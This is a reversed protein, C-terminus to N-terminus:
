SLDTKNCFSAWNILYWLNLKAHNLGWANHSARFDMETDIYEHVYHVQMKAYKTEAVFLIEKFYFCVM